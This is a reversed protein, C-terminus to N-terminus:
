LRFLVCSCNRPFLVQLIVFLDSLFPVLFRFEPLYSLFLDDGSSSMQVFLAQLEGVRRATALSLLFLVKRTLDRLSCSSLPKFPPGRLFSLVLSLDWPPVRSSPLPRELHFSRLLDRLVFHSSLEHLIFRFVISLMSRCSAISSYSLSLSRRLYLLFSAIKQVTPRSVSHGHCSFRARYVSWKAQDNVRTSSRRCRALQRAVASTFGFARASREIYSVCDSSARPPEPPFSPLTATQTSGESTSPVGPCGGSAGSPRSVLPTSALVSGGLHAGFGQIAQGERSCAPASRLSPLHLGASRGVVADNCGQGSVASRGDALLLGPASPESGDCFPRYDGALPSSSRPLSSLLPDVGIGPGAFPM